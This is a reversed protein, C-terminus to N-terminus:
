SQRGPLRRRQLLMLSLVTKHTPSPPASLAFAATEQAPSPLADPAPWQWDMWNKPGPSNIFPSSAGSSPLSNPNNPLHNQYYDLDNDPDNDQPNDQTNDQPNDQSNNQHSGPGNDGNMSDAEDADPSTGGAESNGPSTDWGKEGGPNM